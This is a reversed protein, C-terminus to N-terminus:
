VQALGTTHSWQAFDAQGKGRARTGAPELWNAVLTAAGMALAWAVLLGLGNAAPDDGWNSEVVAGILMLAPYHLVFLPFSIRSLYSIVSVLWASGFAGATRRSGWLILVVATASSVAIRSRWEVAQAIACLLVVALLWLKKRKGELQSVWYAAIGLGYSGFFYFGWIEFDHNRNFVLLSSLALAVVAAMAMGKGFRAFRGRALAASVACIAALIAYLQLDIAVYWAGATLAPIGLVDQAFLLHAVLATLDPAAPISPEDVMSRAIAACVLAAALGIFYVKALRKYRRMIVGPLGALSSPMWAKRNGPLLAAAAMFGGMVLFCQVSLRGNNALWKFLAPAFGWAADSMPAFLCFHHWTIIQAAGGKIADLVVLRGRTKETSSAAAIPAAAGRSPAIGIVHSENQLLTGTRQEKAPVVDALANM